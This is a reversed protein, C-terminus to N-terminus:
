ASPPEDILESWRRFAADQWDSRLEELRAAVRRGKWGRPLLVDPLHPDVFPLRQWENVLQVYTFLMQDGSRPRVRTFRELLADYHASVKALDWSQEVMERDGLGIDIAPGVFAFTFRALDFHEILRKAEAQREDHPTVWLGPMPNGFGAWTLARYLKHRVLRHTEPVSTVIVLWKGDWPVSASTSRVREAGEEIYRQGSPTLRWRARRGSREAEIWGAQAARAIAQRASREEIGV